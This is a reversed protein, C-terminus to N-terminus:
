LDLAPGSPDLVSIKSIVVQIVLPLLHRPNAVSICFLEEVVSSVYVVQLGDEFQACATPELGPQEQKGFLDCPRV